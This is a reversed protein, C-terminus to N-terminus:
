KVDVKGTSSDYTFVMEEPPVPLKEIYKKEVLENLSAPYRGEQIQFTNIKNKLYLLSDMAKTKKLTKGMVGTYKEPANLIGLDEEKERRNCSLLLPLFLLALVIVKRM